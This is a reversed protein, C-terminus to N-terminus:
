LALETQGQHVEPAEGADVLRWHAAPNPLDLRVALWARLEPIQEASWLPTGPKEPDDVLYAVPLPFRPTPSKLWRHIARPEVGLRRAVYGIRHLQM